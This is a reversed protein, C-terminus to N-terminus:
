PNEYLNSAKLSVENKKISSKDTQSFNSKKMEDLRFKGGKKLSLDFNFFDSKNKM